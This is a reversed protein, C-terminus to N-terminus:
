DKGSVVSSQTVLRRGLTGIILYPGPSRRTLPSLVGVEGHSAPVERLGDGFM